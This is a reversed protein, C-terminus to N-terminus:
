QRLTAIYTMLRPHPQFWEGRAHCDKFERHLTRELPMGGRVTALIRLQAPHGTQMAAMRSEVSRSTFGIKINKTDPAQIFYVWGDEECSRTMGALLLRQELNAVESDDAKCRDGISEITEWDLPGSSVMVVADNSAGYDDKCKEHCTMLAGNDDDYFVSCENISVWEECHDCPLRMMGREPYQMLYETWAQRLAKVGWGSPLGVYPELTFYDIADRPFSSDRAVDALLDGVPDDRGEQSKLWLWFTPGSARGRAESISREQNRKRAQLALESLADEQEHTVIFVADGAITIDHISTKPGGGFDVWSLANDVEDPKLIKALRAREAGMLRKAFREGVYVRNHLSKFEGQSCYGMKVIYKYFQEFASVRITTDPRWTKPLAVSQVGPVSRIIERPDIQASKLM